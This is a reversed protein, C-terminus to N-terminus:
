SFNINETARQKKLLIIDHITWENFKTKDQKNSLASTKIINYGLSRGLILKTFGNNSWIFLHCVIICFFLFGCEKTNNPLRMSLISLFLTLEVLFHNVTYNLRASLQMLSLSPCYLSTLFYDTSVYYSIQNKPFLM